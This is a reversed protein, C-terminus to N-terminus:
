DDRVRTLGAYLEPRRGIFVNKGTPQHLRQLRAARLHCVLASEHNESAQKLINGEPDVVVAAGDFTQGKRGFGTQNCAALYVGNDLARVPLLQHLKEAVGKGGRPSAALCAFIVEAGQLALLTSTEPYRLDHCILIGLRAKPHEFVALNSGPLFYHKEKLTLHTKRYVGLLGEPGVLVQSIYRETGRVWEGMGAILTVGAEAAIEQLRATAPGPITELFPSIHWSHDYGCVSMEPFCVVEAGKDAMRLTWKHMRQLNHTNQGFDARFNVVAVTLDEM